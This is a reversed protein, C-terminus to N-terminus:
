VKKRLFNVFAQKNQLPTTTPRGLNKRAGKKVNVELMVPGALKKIKDIGRTIEAVSTARFAACYGCARAIACIDIAFGATPQGGVSDHAGNNIVIHKLNKPKQSGIISLAGMHMIVAGDGDLLYVNKKPKALAIGLAIQSSHGMSGVTLFDQSHGQAKHERYEFLERSTMGTTSVVAATKGIRDVILQIAEERTLLAKTAIKKKLQYASFTNKRVVLAYPSSKSRLHKLATKLTSRAGALSDPLIQFPIGLVNLMGTTIRGQKVHQPEDKEGPEGRWGILLLVPIRYIEKDTLSTLPNITNGLGSNQLYVCGIQNTALHHGAALAVAGGENATIINNESKTHDTVYALFDKLLSDPVGTFFRIGNQNLLKYFAACDLM